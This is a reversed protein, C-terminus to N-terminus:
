ANTSSRRINIFSVQTKKFLKTIDANANASFRSPKCVSLHRTLNSTGFLTKENSIRYVKKCRICACIGNVQSTTENEIVYVNYFHKWVDSKEACNKRLVYKNSANPARLANEIVATDVNAMKLNESQLNCQAYRLRFLTAM